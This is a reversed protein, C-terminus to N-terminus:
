ENEGTTITVVANNKVVLEYGEKPYKCNKLKKIVEKDKESVMEDGIEKINVKKVRVLYQILAHETIVVDDIIDDIDRQLLSIYERKLRMEKKLQNVQSNLTSLEEVAKSKLTNLHKLNKM